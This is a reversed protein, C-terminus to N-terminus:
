AESLTFVTVCHLMAESDRSLDSASKQFSHNMATTKETAEAIRQIREAIDESAAVQEAISSAMEKSEAVFGEFVKSVETLKEGAITVNGQVSRIGTTAKQMSETLRKIGKQIEIVLLNVQDASLKSGEALKRVEDAVVAFGRGQEGARAAEIAANLALLNTKEAIEKITVAVNTINSSQDLLSRTDSMAQDISIGLVETDKHIVQISQYGAAVIVLSETAKNTFHQTQDSLSAVAVASQEVAAAIATTADASSEAALALQRSSDDIIHASTSFSEARKRVDVITGTIPVFAKNIIAGIMSFEDKGEQYFKGTFNLKEYEGAQDILRTISTIIRSRVILIIILSFVSLIITTLQSIAASEHTTTLNTEIITTSRKIVEDLEKELAHISPKADNSIQQNATASNEYKGDIVDHLIAGCAEEYNALNRQMSAGNQAFTPNIEGIQGLLKHISSINADWTAKYAQQKNSNGMNILVDKEDRRLQLLTKEARIAADKAAINVYIVNVYDKIALHTGGPGYIGVILVSVIAWFLCQAITFKNLFSNM